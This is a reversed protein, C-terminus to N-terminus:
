VSLLKSQSLDFEYFGSTPNLVFSSFINKPLDKRRMYVSVNYKKFLYVYGKFKRFRDLLRLVKTMVTDGYMEILGTVSFPAFGYLDMKHSVVIKKLKSCSVFKGCEGCVGCM